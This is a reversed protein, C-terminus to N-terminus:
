ISSENNKEKNVVYIDHCKALFFGFTHGVVAAIFIGLNFSMVALMILYLFSVRFFYITAQILGGKIHNTGQKFTPKNSLIEAVMALFFVFWCSLFYMGVNHNPWSPFLLIADKGWYLSMHREMSKKM